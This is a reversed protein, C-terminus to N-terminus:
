IFDLFISFLQTINKYTQSEFLTPRNTNEDDDDEKWFYYDDDDDDDYDYDIPIYPNLYFTINIILLLM